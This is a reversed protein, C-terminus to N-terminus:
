FHGVLRKTVTGSALVEQASIKVNSYWIVDRGAPWRLPLKYNRPPLVVCNVRSGGDCQRDSHSGQAGESFNFCPVYNEYEQACFEIEKLRSSGLALDQIDKFDSILQEQLPLWWYGGIFNVSPKRSISVLRRVSTLLLSFTTIAVVLKLVLSFLQHKMKGNGGSNKDVRFYSDDIKNRLSNSVNTSCLDGMEKDKKRRIEDEPDSGVLEAERLRGSSGARNHPGVM